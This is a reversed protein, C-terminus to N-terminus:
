DRAAYSSYTRGSAPAGPVLRCEEEKQSQLNKMTHPVTAPKDPEIWNEFSGSTNDEIFVTKM